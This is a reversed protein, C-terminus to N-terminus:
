IADKFNFQTSFILVVFAHSSQPSCHNLGPSFVNQKLQLHIQMVWVSHELM